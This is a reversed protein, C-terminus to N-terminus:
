AEGKHHGKKGKAAELSAALADVLDKPRAREPQPATVVTVAGEAKAEIMALVQERFEDTYKSPDFDASLADILKKAMEVEKPTAKVKEPIGEISEPKIVEDDYNMTTMTLADEYPRIAVLYEKTRMVVRAIAVKKTSQMAELLLRYAKSGGKDPVLYYVKEYYIPDIEALEVFDSIDITETKAPNLQLLEEPNITVYQDPGVKFGKVIEDYPVEAGDASCVRKMEIRGGDKGHIQNFKVEKQSIATVVKVPVNVLGFSLSGSWIARVM